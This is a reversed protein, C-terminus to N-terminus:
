DLVERAAETAAEVTADIDIDSHATSVYWLGRPTTHIGRVLLAEIFRAHDSVNGVARDRITRVNAPEDVATHVIPGVQRVTLRPSSLALGHALREGLRDLTPYITSRGEALYRIAAVGASLALPNGNFTGNHALRGMAIPAMVERSGTVASLAVGAAMAKAFVALDASVGYREQAGGLSLRFGTIVEDFIL